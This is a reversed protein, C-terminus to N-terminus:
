EKSKIKEVKVEQLTLKERTEVKNVPKIDLVKVEEVVTKQPMIKVEQLAPKIDVITGEKVIPKVNVIKVEELNTKIDTLTVAETKVPSLSINQTVPTPPAPPPTPASLNLKKPTAPPAPPTAPAILTVKGPTAPTPPVPPPPAQVPLEGYKDKFRKLDSESDLNYKETTGNQLTLRLENAHENINSIEKGNETHKAKNSSHLWNINRVEPHRKIFSDHAERGNQIWTLTDHYQNTAKKKELKKSGPVTDTLATAYQKFSPNDNIMIVGEGARNGWIRKSNEKSFVYVQKVHVKDALQEKYERATYMKDNYIVLGKPKDMSISITDATVYMDDNPKNGSWGMMGGKSEIKIDGHTLPDAKEKIDSQDAYSKSRSIAQELSGDWEMAISSSLVKYAPGNHAAKVLVLFSKGDDASRSYSFHVSSTNGDLSLKHDIVKDTAKFSFFGNQDTVAATGSNLEQVKVNAMPKGSEGDIVMGGYMFTSNGPESMKSRFALLVSAMLPLLFLFKLVHIKSTKLKNMMAIRKKLSSFNFPTAISFKQNGIVKLLLYQYEKKNIGNGLVTDDAIYELNQRVAKRILWAFPNYWNLFCIIESCIIDITHKQKVHVFEHQIIKELEQPAHLSSNIYINKGFSFPIIPANVQYVHIDGSPIFSAKRKIKRFSLVQITLRGTLVLIGAIFVLVAYDWVGWSAQAALAESTHGPPLPTASLQQLTPFHQLWTFTAPTNNTVFPTIDIAAIFFSLISYGLLYWRNYTYFTLRRLVFYYFLYLITLSISLKLLYQFVLPM